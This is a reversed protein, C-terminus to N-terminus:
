KRARELLTANSADRRSTSTEWSSAVGVQDMEERNGLSLEVVVGDTVDM